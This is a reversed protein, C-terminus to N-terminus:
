WSDVFYVKPILRHSGRYVGRLAASPLETTQAVNQIWARIALTWNLGWPGGCVIQGVEAKARNEQTYRVWCRQTANNKQLAALTPIRKQRVESCLQVDTSGSIIWLHGSVQHLLYKWEDNLLQSLKLPRSRKDWFLSSSLVEVSLHKYTTEWTLIPHDSTCSCLVHKLPLPWTTCFILFVISVLLLRWFLSTQSILPALSNLTLDIPIILSMQIHMHLEQLNM